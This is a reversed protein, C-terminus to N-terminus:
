LKFVSESFKFRTLSDSIDFLEEVVDAVVILDATDLAGLM